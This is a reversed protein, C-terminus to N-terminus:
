PMGGGTVASVAFRCGMSNLENDLSLYNWALFVGGCVKLGIMAWKRRSGLERGFFKM